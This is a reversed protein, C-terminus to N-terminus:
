QERSKLLPHGSFVDQKTEQPVVVLAPKQKGSPVGRVSQTELSGQGVTAGGGGFQLLSRGCQTSFLSNNEPELSLHGVQL